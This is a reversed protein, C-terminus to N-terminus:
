PQAPENTTVIVDDLYVTSTGADRGGVECGVGMTPEQSSAFTRLPIGAMDLEVNDLIFRVYENKTADIVLKLAHFQSPDHWLKLGTALDQSAGAADQYRLRDNADDYLVLGRHGAAGDYTTVWGNVSGVASVRAFSMEGGFLHLSPYPGNWVINAWSGSSAGAVLRAALLGTRTYATTLDVTAGVGANDSYFRGLGDEFSDQFIVDGRRDHRDLAGLRVALEALDTLQYTTVVGATQGWDPTGHGV